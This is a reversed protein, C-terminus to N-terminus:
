SKFNFMEVAERLEISCEHLQKQEKETLRFRRKTQIAIM